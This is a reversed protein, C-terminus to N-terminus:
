IRAKWARQMIDQPYAAVAVDGSSNLIHFYGPFWPPPKSGRMQIKTPNSNKTDIVEKFIEDATKRGEDCFILYALMRADMESSSMRETQREKPAEPVKPKAGQASSPQRQPEGPTRMYESIITRSSVRYSPTQRQVRGYQQPTAQAYQQQPSVWAQPSVPRTYSVPEQSSVMPQAAPLDVYDVHTCTLQNQVSPSPPHQVTYPANQPTSPYNQPILRRGAVRPRGRGSQFGQPPPRPESRVGARPQQSGWRNTPTEARIPRNRPEQERVLRAETRISQTLRTPRQVNGRRTRAINPTSPQYSMATDSKSEM